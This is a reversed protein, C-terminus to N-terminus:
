SLRLKPLVKSNYFELFGAQDDGIPHAQVSDDAVSFVTMRPWAPWPLRIM